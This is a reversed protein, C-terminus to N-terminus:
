LKPIVKNFYLLSFKGRYIISTVITEPLALFANLHKL